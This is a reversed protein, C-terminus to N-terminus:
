QGHLGHLGHLAMYRVYSPRAVGLESRYSRKPEFM